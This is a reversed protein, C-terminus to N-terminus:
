LLRRSVRVGDTCMAARVVKQCWANFCPNHLELIVVTFLIVLHELSKDILEVGEWHLVWFIHQYICPASSLKRIGHQADRPRPVLDVGSGCVVVM